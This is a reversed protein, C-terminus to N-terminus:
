HLYATQWHIHILHDFPPQLPPHLSYKIENCVQNSLKLQRANGQNNQASISKRKDQSLMSLSYEFCLLFAAEETLHSATFYNLKMTLSGFIVNKLETNFEVMLQIFLFHCSSKIKEVDHEGQLM